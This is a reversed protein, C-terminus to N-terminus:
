TKQCTKVVRLHESVKVDCLDISKQHVFCHIQFNKNGAFHEFAYREVLLGCWCRRQAQARALKPQHIQPGPFMGMIRLELCLVNISRNRATIKFAGTGSRNGFYFVTVSVFSSNSSQFFVLELPAGDAIVLANAAVVQSTVSMETAGNAYVSGNVNVRSTQAQLSLRGTTNVILDGQLVTMVGPQTSVSSDVLLTGNLNVPTVVPLSSTAVGLMRGFGADTLDGLAVINPAGVAAYYAKAISINGTGGIVYYGESESYAGAYGFNGGFALLGFARGNPTIVEPDETSCLDNSPTDKSGGLVLWKGAGYGVKRGAEVFMVQGQALSSVTWSDGNNYSNRQFNRWDRYRGDVCKDGFFLACGVGSTHLYIDDVSEV